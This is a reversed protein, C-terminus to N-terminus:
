VARTTRPIKAHVLRLHHFEHVLAHAQEPIKELPLCASGFAAKNRSMWILSITNAFVEVCCSPDQLALYMLESFCSLPSTAENLKAFQPLWVPDLKQCSWLAHVVIELELNCKPCTDVQLLKRRALNVKTPFSDNTAGWLLSRIRNPVHLNWIKKWTANCEIQDSVEPANLTEWERALNYGIKVLYVGSRNKPWYLWDPTDLLSLPIVKMINAESPIFIADVRDSKCCHLEHDILAAVKLVLDHVGPPSIVRGSGGCPLWHDEFVKITRGNGVGWKAGRSIIDRGKLISKWAFSGLNNKAEFISGHPFFKSKFFRYLLTDQNTLLRWVQKALLADNFKQIERFGMGGNQKPRCLTHWKVWHVKRRRGRHGWWFKCVMVEIEHCLTFPLKLYSMAFTPLM